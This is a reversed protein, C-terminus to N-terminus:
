QADTWAVNIWHGPGAHSPGVVVHTICDNRTGQVISEYSASTCCCLSDTGRWSAMVLYCLAWHFALPFVFVAPKPNFLFPTSVALQFMFWTESLICSNFLTSYTSGRWYINKAKRLCKECWIIMIRPKCNVTEILRFSSIASPLVTCSQQCICRCREMM